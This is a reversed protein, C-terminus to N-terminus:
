VPEPSSHQDDPARVQDGNFIDRKQSTCSVRDTDAVAFNWLVMSQPHSFERSTVWVASGSRFATSTCTSQDLTSRHVSYVVEAVTGTQYVGIQPRLYSYLVEYTCPGLTRTCYASLASTSSPLVRVFMSNRLLNSTSDYLVVTYDSYELGRVGRRGREHGIGWEAHTATTGLHVGYKLSRVLVFCVASQCAYVLVSSSSLKASYPTPRM